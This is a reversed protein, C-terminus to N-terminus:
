NTERDATYVKLVNVAWAKSPDGNFFVSGFMVNNPSPTKIWVGDDRQFQESLTITREGIKIYKGDRIAYVKSEIVTNWPIRDPYTEITYAYVQDDKLEESLPYAFLETDNTSDGAGPHKGTVQIYGTHKDFLDAFTGIRQARSADGGANNVGVFIGNHDGFQTNKLNKASFEVIAAQHNKRENSIEATYGYKEKTKSMDFVAAGEHVIVDPGVFPNIMGTEPTFISEGENFSSFDYFKDLKYKPMEEKTTETATQNEQSPDHSSMQGSATEVRATALLLSGWFVFRRMLSNKAIKNLWGGNRQNDTPEERLVDVIKQPDIYISEIRLIPQGQDDLKQEIPQEKNKEKAQRILRSIKSEEEFPAPNTPQRITEQRNLNEFKKPM